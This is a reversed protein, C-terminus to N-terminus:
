TQTPVHEVQGAHTICSNRVIEDEFDLQVQGDPVVHTFLSYINRSYMQSAHIPMSSPLDLPGQILVGNELIQEGPKTLECNGGTEAAIDIITSGPRMDRVMDETILVPAPKGPVAATTIVFDVDVVHEHITERESQQTQQTLEKAYGSAHEAEAVLVKPQIFTAGLSQVQEGVAPRVDYAQLVAGLRHATAIAQLGAVGVGLVLGRAPALSGAATIMMPFFKGLSEAAMLAAKYGSVSAMSSLADMSQARAIRPVADMSFSTVGRDALRKVMGVNTLPQLFAILLTGERLLDVEHVGAGNREMPSRVKLIVDASGYVRAADPEIEAGAKEFQDDFFMAPEGAGAEVAVDFGSKVLKAVSDPVLAVRREGPTNEKPVGIKM